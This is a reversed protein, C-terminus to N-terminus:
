SKLDLILKYVEDKSVEYVSAIAKALAKPPMETMLAKILKTLEPSLGTSQAEGKSVIVVFEGKQHNPSEDLYNLIQSATGQKITEFQKTLERAICINREYGLEAILDEVFERIRHPSEYYISTNPSNKIQALQERRQKSKAPLFGYFTFTDSAMGSASLATVFACCGPIPEVRIGQQHCLSTLYYGPDSILPTGADSILAFNEGSKLRDIISEAVGRENHDHLAQTKTKVGFHRLLPTSHRTDECLITDVENLVSIARPSLDELNGIPTAVIYIKGFNM